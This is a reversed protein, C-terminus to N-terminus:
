SLSLVTKLMEKGSAVTAEDVASFDLKEYINMVQNATAEPIFDIGLDGNLFEGFRVLDMISEVCSDTRGRKLNAVITEAASKSLRLLLDEFVKEAEDPEMGLSEQIEVLIDNRDSTVDGNKLGPLVEIEFMKILRSKSVGVDSHMDLGMSNCKERFYKIGEPTPSDMIADVEDNLVKRQADLLMKEGQEPSLGLKGQLNALFMMDQQDLAGKQRMTQSIYNDYVTTGINKGIDEMKESTLGLIGGFSAKAGEYRAANPGQSQFAGVIFQRYLVEAMEQDVAGIDLATIPYKTEYVPIEVSVTQSEEGEEQAPVTKEVSKTSIEKKEAIDNENYFDILNMIDSMINIEAGLGLTGDAGKGSQFLDEGLDKNRRQSLQQQTFITREMESVIWEVMPVMREKVADLFVAKASKESVGLRSRLDDLPQRFEPRIVGTVSMAEIVSKKYVSGFTDMHIGFTDEKDMKFLRQLGELAQIQEASPIGSPSMANIRKVATTYLGRGAQRVLENTLHYNEIVEQVDKELNELLEPTYDTLVEDAANQLIKVLEPGFAQRVETDASQDTIGLLGKVELMKSYQEDSIKSDEGKTKSRSIFIRYMKQRDEQSLFGNVSASDYPNCFTVDFNDAENWGSKQLIAVIAAKADLVELLKEYTSAENNVTAFKNTEELPGGLAQMVLSSILQKTIQEPMLLDARRADIITWAEDPTMTKEIVQSMVELATVQFPAAGENVIEYELDSDRLSLITQM